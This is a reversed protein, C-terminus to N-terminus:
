RKALLLLYIASIPIVKYLSDNVLTSDIFTSDIKNCVACPTTGDAYNAIETNNLTFLLDALFTLCFRARHYVWSYIRGYVIHIM